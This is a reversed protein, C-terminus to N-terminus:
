TTTAWPRPPTVPIAGPQNWTVGTDARGDTVGVEGASAAAAARDTVTPGLDREAALLAARRRDRVQDRLRDAAAFSTPMTVSVTSGNVTTAARLRQGRDPVSYTAGPTLGTDTFGLQPLNWWQSNADVQHRPTPAGTRIAKYTLTRDDRDYGAPWSVRLPRPRRRCWGHARVPHDVFRPGEAKPHRRRDSPSACWARSTRRRQGPPVRRRLGPLRRQKGSVNWGAQGQGTFTGIAMDPLWNVM